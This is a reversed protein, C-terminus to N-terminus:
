KLVSCPYLMTVGAGLNGGVWSIHSNKQLIARKTNLNYTNESWNEVSSYRLKANDAVFIEVAGAHLSATEYRPASCGEIYHAESDEELIILTHEFQGSSRTEMRFYSQFPDKTRLGKPIFLFSGGKWFAGHLASFFHDHATINKMFYQRVLSEHKLLATPLDLFIVGQAEMTEKLTHYMTTGDVQTGTGALFDKEAEPLGLEDFIKRYRDPVDKWVHAAEPMLPDTQYLIKELDLRSLDPGWNPLSKQRLIALSELRLELMWAPEKQSESIRRVIEEFKGADFLAGTPRLSNQASSLLSSSM